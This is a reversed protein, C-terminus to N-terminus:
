PSGLKRQKSVIAVRSLYSPCDSVSESVIATVASACSAISIRQQFDTAWKKFMLYTLLYTLLYDKIACRDFAMSIVFFLIVYCFQFNICRLVVASKCVTM